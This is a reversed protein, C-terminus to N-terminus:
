KRKYQRNSILREYLIRYYNRSVYVTKHTGQFEVLSSATLNKSISYIERTNLITSKSVRMFYLPLLNELEYLKYHVQFRNDITHAFIENKETEFFLIKHIDFYYEKDQNYFTILNSSPCVSTLMNQLQIVQENMEPGKIIVELDEIQSDIEVKIKM